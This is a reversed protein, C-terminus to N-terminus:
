HHTYELDSGPQRHEETDEATERHDHARQASVPSNGRGSPSLCALSHKLSLPGSPRSATENLITGYGGTLSPMWWYGVRLRGSFSSSGWAPLEGSIRVRTALSDPPRSAVRGTWHEGGATLRLAAAPPLNELLARLTRTSSDASQGALRMPSIGLVSLGLLTVVIRRGHRSMPRRSYSSPM